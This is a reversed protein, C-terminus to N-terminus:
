SKKTYVMQMSDFWSEGDFSMEMGSYVTGDDRNMMTIRMHYKQGMMLDTGTSVFKDGEWGGVMFTAHASMSDIWFGEFQQTERNYTVTDRGHLPMGMMAGSFNQVHITGELERTFSATGASEQWPAEPGMRVKVAVTWDGLLFDMSSLEEPAGMAPMQHDDQGFALTPLLLLGCLAVARITKM